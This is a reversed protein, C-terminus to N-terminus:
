TNLQRKCCRRGALCNHFVLESSIQSLVHCVSLPSEPRSQAIM